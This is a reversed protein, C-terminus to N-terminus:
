PNLIAKTREFIELGLQHAWYPVDIIVWNESLKERRRYYVDVVQMESPAEGGVMGNYGGMTTNILNPWGFFASFRGEAIRVLHNVFRRDKLTGRFIKQGGRFDEITFSAGTAGYWLMDDDWNKALVEYPMCDMVDDYGVTADMMAIMRRMTERGEEEPADGYLLGNHDRPGPYIYRASELPPLPNAGADIMFGIMDIFLGTKTIRGNEVCNFETYRLNIIKKTPRVGLWEGVFNGMFHGMSFVWIEEHDVMENDGAFFIDQRRQMSGLARKLPTWFLDAVAQASNQERFPYSGKFDYEATLYRGMVGSVEEPACRELADFYDRVLRKAAQFKGM